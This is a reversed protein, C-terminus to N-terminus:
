AIQIFFWRMIIPFTASRRGHQVRFHALGGGTLCVKVPIMCGYLEYPTLIYKYKYTFINAQNGKHGAMQCRGTLCVKAQITGGYPKSPAGMHKPHHGWITQITGGYTKSPAGM